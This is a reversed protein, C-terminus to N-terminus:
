MALIDRAIVSLVPFKPTNVKWWSLVDYDTEEFSIPNELKEKLYLDLENLKEQFGGVELFEKYIDNMSEYQLGNGLVTKQYVEERSQGSSTSAENSQALSGSEGSGNKNLANSYENFLNKWIDRVEEKLDESKSRDASDWDDKTPPGVGKKKRWLIMVYTSNWRSKVNLPLSGRQIKRSEVHNEFAKLRPTSSRVFYIGNRIANVSNVIEMLGEKVILNIIHTDCRLHLFDDNLIVADDGIQKFDEKFTEM